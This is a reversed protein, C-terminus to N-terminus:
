WEVDAVPDTDADASAEQEAGFEEFGLALAELADAVANAAACEAHDYNWATSNRAGEAANRVIRAAAETTIVTM